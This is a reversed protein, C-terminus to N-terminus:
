PRTALTNTTVGTAIPTVVPTSAGVFEIIKSGDITWINGSPDPAMGTPLVLNGFGYFGISNIGTGSNSYAAIGGSPYDAALWITGAGDFAFASPRVGDSLTNGPSYTGTSSNYTFQAITDNTMWPNGASDIAVNGFSLSSDQTVNISAGTAISTGFLGYPDGSTWVNGSSSIALGVNGIKSTSTFHLDVGSPSLEVLSSTVAATNTWVNGSGDIAIKGFPSGEDPQFASVTGSGSIKYIHNTSTLWANGSQDIAISGSPFVADTGVVYGSAGSLVSGSPSMEIVAMPGSSPAIFSWVNGSGDIAISKPLSYNSTPGTFSVALTFDSPPNILTPQFPAAAPPLASLTSVNAGPNHAINIATTATDTPTTGSSGASQASSFLTSCTTSAAGTSNVCSSLIDALFNITRQPVTGNGAPTTKLAQGSSISALNAANAFANAIGTLALPTGSSSVHTADIAFGAFAYAAAITSVENVSIFPITPLFSGSDPCNGLAALLGAASNIGAGPDGGLAYLYVQTNPTCSYDNTITFTGSADTTVYTGVPDTAAGTASPNLLSVSPQGYGTTNAAFLYVHAGAIPQRGGHVNGQLVQGHDPSPAASPGLACGTLFLSCLLALSSRM